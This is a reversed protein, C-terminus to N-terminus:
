SYIVYWAAFDDEICQDDDGLGCSVLQKAGTYWFGINSASGTISSFCNSIYYLFNQGQEILAADMM